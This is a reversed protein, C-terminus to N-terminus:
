AAGISFTILSRRASWLGPAVGRVTTLVLRSVDDRDEVHFLEHGRADSSRLTARALTAAIGRLDREGDIMTLVQWEHPLLDLM